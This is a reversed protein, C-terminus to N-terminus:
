DAEMWEAPIPMSHTTAKLGAGKALSPDAKFENIMPVADPEETNWRSINFTSKNARAEVTCAALATAIGIEDEGWIVVDVDNRLGNEVGQNGGMRTATKTLGTVDCTIPYKRGLWLGLDVLQKRAAQQLVKNVNEPDTPNFGGQYKREGTMPNLIQVLQRVATSKFNHAGVVERSTDTLNASTVITYYIETKERGSKGSGENLEVQVAMNLNLYLDAKPLTQEDQYEIEGEDELDKVLRYAGDNFLSYIKFRKLRPLESEIYIKMEQLGGPTLQPGDKTSQSATIDLYLVLTRMSFKTEANMPIAIRGAPIALDGSRAGKPTATNKQSVGDQAISSACGIALACTMMVLKTLKMNLM